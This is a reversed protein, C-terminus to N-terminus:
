SFYEHAKAALSALSNMLADWVGPKETVIAHDSGSLDLYVIDEQEPLVMGLAEAARALESLNLVKEAQARLQTNEQRIASLDRQLRNGEKSLESLQMYTYVIFLASAFALALLLATLLSPRMARARKAQKARHAQRARAEDQEAPHELPKGSRRYRSLDPAVREAPRPLTRVDDM